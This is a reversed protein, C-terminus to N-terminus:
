APWVSAAAGSLREHVERDTPAGGLEMALLVAGVVPPAELRVPQVRPATRRVTAELTQNLCRNRTHFLGGALVLEPDLEQMGLARIVLAASAGLAEGARELIGCAVEDSRDAAEVVVPAFVAPDVRGRGAREIFDMGSASGTRECLLETLLTKPGRGTFEDAVAGVGAESIESASGWDGFLPGLGLTRFVEGASNRGAAVSGSGAIVVVGWSRGAGARLAVFADNTIECPGVLGVAEPIGSLRLRDSPFDVGALGFVSARVDGPGVGGSDFAGRVAARIAAGAAEIGVDEWNGPGSAGFGLIAGTEDAVVAHTKTGGGDVGLVITV